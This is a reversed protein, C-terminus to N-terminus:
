PRRRPLERARSHRRQERAPPHAPSARARTGRGGRRRGPRLRRLARVRRRDRRRALPAQRGAAGAPRLALRTRRAGRALEAGIGSSAGTVVAIRKEVQSVRERYAARLGLPRERGGRDGDLTHRGHRLATTVLTSGWLGAVPRRVVAKQKGDVTFRVATIRRTSSAAVVLRQSKALCAGAAPVLWDVATGAVVHLETSATRTNPMISPGVTDINKAEQFDSSVMRLRATGPELLPATSPLPIVAIGTLPDYSTAGVLVGRYGITVSLPDVGSQSDFTQLVITPRGASVRTTLLKVTPPTVDNVWSRLVYHGALSRGTFRDRGSDVSVYFTQQRPFSVGAAGVPVLYDYTLANVDVPTGAFGQVTNEDKAGLYWPDVRVGPSEGVVSVGANAAPENISTVYVTEAGDELMPPTDPANGFPAVPYRYADVRDVGTRTDGSQTKELQLM